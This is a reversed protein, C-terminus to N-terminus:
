LLSPTIPYETDAWYKSFPEQWPLAKVLLSPRENYLTSCPPNRLIESVMIVANSLPNNSFIRLDLHFSLNFDTPSCVRRFRRNIRCHFLTVFVVRKAVVRPM